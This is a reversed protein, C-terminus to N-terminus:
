MPEMSAKWRERGQQLIEELIAELSMKIKWNPYASEFTSNDTIWLQHDGTRMPHFSVQMKNGTLRECATIAELMSCSNRRGGGLNYVVRSTPAQIFEHMATVLDTAHLQDRVQMGRYGYVRYPIQEYACRMMYGLMGHAEVASHSGGTICSARLCAAKLGFQAAFEQVYLDASTKSRGFFSSTGGQDIPVSEDFGNYYRHETGLDCHTPLQVYNLTNPYDGYVKITSMYIFIASPAYVKWAELMNLTGVVNTEFDEWLSGEHATQAATHIIAVINDYGRLVGQVEARQCVDFTYNRFGLLTRQLREINWLTSAASDHLMKGRSDNDVGIVSYGLAHFYEAAASGILGGVGTIVIRPM